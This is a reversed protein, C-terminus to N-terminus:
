QLYKNCNEKTNKTPEKKRSYSMVSEITKWISNSRTRFKEFLEVELVCLCVVHSESVTLRKINQKSVNKM